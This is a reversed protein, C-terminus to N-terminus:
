SVTEKRRIKRKRRDYYYLLVAIAVALGIGVVDTIKGTEILSLSAVFLVSRTLWKIKKGLYIGQLAASLLYVGIIATIVSLMITLLSGYMLLAPGYAFMYPVILGTLGLRFATVGVKIPSSNAISAAAYAALAVPPTTMALLSSYAVFLHAPFPLIGVQQLTPVCVAATIIYAPATPLGMGLILAILMTLMLVFLKYNGALRIVHASFVAGLGTFSIIGLIIGAVACTAIISLSAIAGETLAEKISEYNLNLRSQYKFLCAVLTAAIGWLAAMTTGTRLVFLAIIIVLLPLSFMYGKSLVDKIKPIDEKALSKIGTLNAEMDIMIFVALFYLIAPLAARLAVEAYSIGIFEAMLFGTAGMIPPMIQGGTSAVAEVAGAFHSKYGTRKMLPITFSGTTVTNAIASGSITGFLCSSLVSVKAPGGRSSGAISNAIDIFFQGGGFKILFTGFLIFHFVTSAAVSLPTGYLGLDSYLASIVRTYNYGEHGLPAPLYQGLWPYLLFGVCVLPLALGITRRTLELSGVIMITGFFVDQFTPQVGMRYIMDFSNIYLYISSSIVGVVVLLDSMSSFLRYRLNAKTTMAVLVGTFSLVISKHAWSDLPNIAIYIQVLSFSVGVLFLISRLSKNLNRDLKTESEIKIQSM